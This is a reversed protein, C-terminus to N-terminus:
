EPKNEGISLYQVKALFIIILFNLWFNLIVFVESSAKKSQEENESGGDSIEMDDGEGLMKTTTSKKIADKIGSEEIAKGRPDAM